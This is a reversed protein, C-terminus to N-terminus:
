TQYRVRNQAKVILFPYSARDCRVSTLSCEPLSLIEVATYELDQNLKNQKIIREQM